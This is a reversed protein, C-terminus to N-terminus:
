NAVSTIQDDNNEIHRLIKEYVENPKFPKTIYDDFGKAGLDQAMNEYAAATFALIPVESNIKRIAELAEYGNLEPMNLDLLVMDFENKAFLDVAVKGNSANTYQVGWKKFFSNILLLNVDNDDAVLVNLDLKQKPIIIPAYINTASLRKKLLPLTFYFNSGVSPQSELKLQGHLLHVLERSISLGLGTGGYKRTIGQEAQEFSDFVNDIKDSAIGIGTDAVSFYVQLQNDNSELIKVTVTIGGNQTFKIANSILNNLVQAIRLDDSEVYTNIQQDFAQILTLNKEAMQGEFSNVVRQITSLLNFSRKELVIKGAEIKSYDLVGNIIQLMHDTSYRLVERYKKIQQENQEEILLDTAGVIGNLPTRLEHSIVSLFNSKAKTAAFAMKQSEVLETIIKRQERASILIFLISIIFAFVYNTIDTTVLADAGLDVKFFLYKPVFFTAMVTLLTFILTPYFAKAEKKFDFFTAYAFLLPFYFCITSYGSTFINYTLFIGLSDVVFTIVKAETYRNNYNLFIGMAISCIFFVAMAISFPSNYIVGFPIYALFLPITCLSFINFLKIRNIETPTLQNHVGINILHFLFSM